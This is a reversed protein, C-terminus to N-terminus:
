EAMPRPRIIITPDIEQNGVWIRYRFECSEKNDGPDANRCYAKLRNVKLRCRRKHEDGIDCRFVEKELAPNGDLEVRCHGPPCPIGRFLWIVQSGTNEDHRKNNKVTCKKSLEKNEVVITDGSRSIEITQSERHKDCKAFAGWSCLLAACLLLRMPIKKM